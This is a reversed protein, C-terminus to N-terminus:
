PGPAARASSFGTAACAAPRALAPRSAQRAVDDRRDKRGPEDALLDLGVDNSPLVARRRRSTRHCSRSAAPPRRLNTKSSPLFDSTVGIRKTQAQSFPCRCSMSQLHTTCRRGPRGPASTPPPSPCWRRDRRCSQRTRSRRAATAAPGQELRATQAIAAALPRPQEVAVRIAAVLLELQQRSRRGVGVERLDVRDDRQRGLLVLERPQDVLKGSFQAVHLDTAPRPARRLAEIRLDRGRQARIGVLLDERPEACERLLSRRRRASASARRTRRRRSRGVRFRASDDSRLARRASAAARPKPQDPRRSRGRRRDLVEDRHM